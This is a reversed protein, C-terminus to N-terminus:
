KLLGSIDATLTIMHTAGLVEQRFLAYNLGINRVRAGTGVTFRGGDWGCGIHFLERYRWALGARLELPVEDGHDNYVAGNLNRSLTTFLLLESALLPQRWGAGLAIDPLVVERLGTSWFLQTTLVDRLRLGITLRQRQYWVGLDVGLGWGTLDAIDEYILKCTGGVRLGERLQMGAAVAAQWQGSNVYKDIVPRNNAGLEGDNELRSSVPISRVSSRIVNIAFARGLGAPINLEVIDKQMEGAFWEGHELTLLYKDRLGLLAPNWFSAFERSDFAVGNGGTCQHLAGAGNVAFDLAGPAAALLPQAVSVLLLLILITLLRQFRHRHNMIPLSRLM